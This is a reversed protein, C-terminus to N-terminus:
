PYWIYRCRTREGNKYAQEIPKLTIEGLYDCKLKEITRKSATNAPNCTLVVGPYVSRVFPAILLCAHYAYSNGRFTEKVGYGIHGACFLIHDTDGVRFNIHGADNGQKDIIRYHYFSVYGKESDGPMITDFQLSIADGEIIQPAEKMIKIKGMKRVFM